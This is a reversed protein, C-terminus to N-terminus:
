FFHSLFRFLSNEIIFLALFYRLFHKNDKAILFICILVIKLILWM